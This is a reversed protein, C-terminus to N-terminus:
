ATKRRSRGLALLGLGILAFTAPVPVEPSGGGAVIGERPADNYAGDLFEITSLDDMRTFNYGIWGFNSGATRFGLFGSHSAGWVGATANDVLITDWDDFVSESDGFNVFDILDGAAYSRLFYYDDIETNITSFTGGGPRSFDFYDGSSGPDLIFDGAGGLGITVESLDGVFGQSYTQNIAFPIPIALTTASQLVLVMGLSLLLLARRHLSM